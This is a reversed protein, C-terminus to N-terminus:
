FFTWLVFENLIKLASEFFQALAHRLHWTEVIAHRNLVYSIEIVLEDLKITLDLILKVFLEEYVVHCFVVINFILIRILGSLLLWPCCGCRLLIRAVVAEDDLVKALKRLVLLSFVRYWGALVGTSKCLM